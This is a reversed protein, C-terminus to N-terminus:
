VAPEAKDLKEKEALAREEKILRYEKITTFIFYRVCILIVLGIFYSAMSSYFEYDAKSLM